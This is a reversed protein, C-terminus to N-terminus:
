AAQAQRLCDLYDSLKKEARGKARLYGPDDEVPTKDGRQAEIAAANAQVGANIHRSRALTVQYQNKLIERQAEIPLPELAEIIARAKLWREEAMVEYYQTWFAVDRMRHTRKNPDSNHACNVDAEVCYFRGTMRALDDIEHDIFWFPYEPNYIYGVKEVWKATVAQLAPFSACFMPMLNIVGLGDPEFLRAANIIMQDFAPRLIPTGDTGPLYVDAPHETLARGYKEGRSDERPNVSVHIRSDTPLQNLAKLTATDDEDVSLMVVTDDRSVNPMTHHLTALLLDPRGRTAINMTLKM